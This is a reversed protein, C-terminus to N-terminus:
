QQDLIKHKNARLLRIIRERGKASLSEYLSVIKQMAEKDSIPATTPASTSEDRKPHALRKHAHLYSQSFVKGCVDCTVIAM